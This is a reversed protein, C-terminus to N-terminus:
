DVKFFANHIIKLANESDKKKLVLSINNKSAGQSIMEINIKNNSLIEFVKNLIDSSKEVNSILSIISYDKKFQVCAIESLKNLTNENITNHEDLTLSISIESSAIVDISIEDEEFIKFVKSLFGYQALMRSSVIDILTINNKTTIATVLNTNENKESIVTGIHEPNYSNKIYVPINSQIAPIMSVPHLIKAGFYALERAENYTVHPVPIANPIKKPDASMLGDVDKWIQVNDAEICKAIFTASLDSGGRGLTNIKDEKSKCIFGTIIPIKDKNLYHNLFKSVDDKCDELYLADEFRDTTVLGTDWSDFYRSNLNFKKNLYSSIIRVSLREGYSSLLDKTRPSFDNLLYIGSLINEIEKFYKNVDKELKKDDCESVLDYHRDKLNYIDVYNDTIARRGANILLNTSDGIASFVIVPKNGKEKEELIINGVNEIRLKNCISSGGFKLVTKLSLIISILTLLILYRIM